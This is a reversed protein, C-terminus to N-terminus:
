PNLCRIIQYLVIYAYVFILSIKSKSVNEGFFNKTLQSELHFIIHARLIIIVYIKYPIKSKKYLFM